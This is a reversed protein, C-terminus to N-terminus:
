LRSVPEQSSPLRRLIEVTTVRSILWKGEVKRWDMKLLQLFPEAEGGTQARVTLQVVSTGAARDVTVEPSLFQVKLSQGEGRVALALQQIQERGKIEGGEGSVGSVKIVVDATFFNAVSSANALRSLPKEGSGFSVADALEDLSRRIITEDGPFLKEYTWFGAFSLVGLAILLLLLKKM